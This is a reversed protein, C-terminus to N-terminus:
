KQATSNRRATDAADPSTRQEPLRVVAPAVTDEVHQAPARSADIARAVALGLLGVAAGAFVDLIYHNATAVVSLAMLVPMTRALWRLWVASAASAVALGVLLDWGVHLSPMAAYQNVFAPPQLVRYSASQETITDVFGLGALRPPAVPYTTFIAIGVLGSAVMANRLRLYTARHRVALWVLATIIVPWHGWIYIWNALTQLTNSGVVLSQASGEWDLGLRKELGLIQRGHRVATRPASETLGRVGFYAAVGVIVVALQGALWRGRGRHVCREQGM